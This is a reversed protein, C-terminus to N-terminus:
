IGTIAMFAGTIVLFSFINKRYEYSSKMLIHKSILEDDSLIEIFQRYILYKFYARREREQLSFYMLM